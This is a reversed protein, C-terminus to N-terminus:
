VHEVRSFHPHHVSGSTDSRVRLCENWSDFAVTGLFRGRGHAVSVRTGVPFEADIKAKLADRAKEFARKEKTFKM